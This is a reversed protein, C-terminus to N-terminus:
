KQSKDQQGDTPTALGTVEYSKYGKKSALFRAWQLSKATITTEGSGTNDQYKVRYRQLSFEAM